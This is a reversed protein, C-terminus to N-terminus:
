SSVIDSCVQSSRSQIFSKLEELLRNEEKDKRCVYFINRKVTIDKVELIKILGLAESKKAALYPLFAIGAREEVASVVGTFSGMILRLKFLNLDLGAQRLLYTDGVNKKIPDRLIITEGSLESSSIEKQNSLPHGPYIILVIDDEAIKFYELEPLEVKLSCLGIDYVRNRVDEIVKLSDTIVLNVEGLPYNDKFEDLISPLIYEAPLPSSVIDLEDAINERLHALDRLMVSHERRVYEAFHYFIRGANTMSVGRKGRDILHIGLEQEMKKIQASIAPQSIYLKKAADSISGIKVVDIFTDLYNMNM